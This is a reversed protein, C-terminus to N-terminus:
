VRRIRYKGISKNFYKYLNETVVQKKAPRDPHELSFRQIISSSIDKKLGANGFVILNPDYEFIESFLKKSATKDTFPFAFFSYDIDFNKKLWEVSDLVEKKQSEVGIQDMPPHSMTHGGFYFGDAIMERIQDSSIYPTNEKLFDNININLYDLVKIM